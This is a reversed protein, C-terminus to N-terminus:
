HPRPWSERRSKPRVPSRSAPWGPESFRTRDSRHVAARGM